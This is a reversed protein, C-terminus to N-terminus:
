NELIFPWEIVLFAENQFEPKKKQFLLLSDLVEMLLSIKKSITTKIISKSKESALHSLDEKNLLPSHLNSRPEMFICAIQFLQNRKLLTYLQMRTVLRNDM